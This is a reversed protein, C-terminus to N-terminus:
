WENRRITKGFNDGGLILIRLQLFEQGDKDKIYYKKDKSWGKEIESVISWEPYGSIDEFFNM